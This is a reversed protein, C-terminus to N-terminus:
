VLVVKYKNIPEAPVPFDVTTDAITSSHAKAPLFTDSVQEVPM